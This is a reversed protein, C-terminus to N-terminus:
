NEREGVCDSFPVHLQIQNLIGHLLPLPAFAHLRVCAAAAAPGQFSSADEEREREQM